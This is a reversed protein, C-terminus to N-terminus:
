EKLAELIDKKIKMGEHNHVSVMLDKEKDYGYLPIIIKDEEWCKGCVRKVESIKGEKTETM